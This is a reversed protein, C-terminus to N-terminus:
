AYLNEGSKKTRWQSVSAENGELQPVIRQIFHESGSLEGNYIFGSLIFRIEVYNYLHKLATINGETVIFISDERSQHGVIIRFETIDTTIHRLNQM